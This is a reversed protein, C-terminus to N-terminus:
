QPFAINLSALQFSTLIAGKSYNVDIFKSFLKLENITERDCNGERTENPHLGITRAYEVPYDCTLCKEDYYLHIHWDIVMKKTSKNVFRLNVQEFDYGMEPDCESFKYEIKVQDNEFYTMWNVSYQDIVNIPETSIQQQSICNNSLYFMTLLLLLRNMITTFKSILINKEIRNWSKLGNIKNFDLQNKLEQSMLHYNQANSFTGYFCILSLLVPHYIKNKM